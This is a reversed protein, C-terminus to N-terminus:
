GLGTCDTVEVDAKRVSDPNWVDFVIIKTDDSESKKLRYWRWHRDSIWTNAHCLVRTGLVQLRVPDMPVEALLKPEGGPRIAFVVRCPNM